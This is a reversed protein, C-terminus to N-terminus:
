HNRDLNTEVKNLERNIQNIGTVQELRFEM